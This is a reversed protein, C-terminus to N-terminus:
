SNLEIANLIRQLRLRIAAPKDESSVDENTPIKFKKELQRIQLLTNEDLAVALRKKYVEKLDKRIRSLNKLVKIQASFDEPNKSECRRLKAYLKLDGTKSVGAYATEGNKGFVIATAYDNEKLEADFSILSSGNPLLSIATDQYNKTGESNFVIGIAKTPQFEPTALVEIEATCISPSLLVILTLLRIM